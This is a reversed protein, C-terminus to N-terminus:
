KEKAEEYFGNDILLEALEGDLQYDANWCTM